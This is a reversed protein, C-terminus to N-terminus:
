PLHLAPSAPEQNETSANLHDRLVVISGDRRKRYPIGLFSLERAQADSRRAGTLQELENETLIM